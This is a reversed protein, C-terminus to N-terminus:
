DIYGNLQNYASGKLKNFLELNEPSLEKKWKEDLKIATVNNLRMRNGLVHHEADSKFNVLEMADLGLFSFIENTKKSPSECLEEYSINFIRNKPVRKLVFHRRKEANIWDRICQGVGPYKERKLWSNIVGKGDRTFNIIYLDLLPNAALHLIFNSSKSADLYVSGGTIEFMLGTFTKIFRDLRTKRKRFLRCMLKYVFLLKQSTTSKLFVKDLLKNKFIKYQFYDPSGLAYGGAALGALLKNWFPCHYYLEGCSCTGEKKKWRKPLRMGVTCTESVTCIEKHTNLLMSLLTSGSHDQTLIFAYKVKQM